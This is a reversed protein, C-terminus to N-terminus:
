DSPGQRHHADGVPLFFQKYVFCNEERDAGACGDLATHKYHVMLVCNVRQNGRM